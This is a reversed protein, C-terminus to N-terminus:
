ASRRTRAEFRARDKAGRRGVLESYLRFNAESRREAAARTEFQEAKIRAIRLADYAVLAPMRLAEGDDRLSRLLADKAGRGSASLWGAVTLGEKRDRAALVARPLGAVLSVFTGGGWPTALADALWTPWGHPTYVAALVRRHEAELLALSGGVADFWRMGGNSLARLRAEHPRGPDFASTSPEYSQAKVGIAASFWGVLEDDAKGYRRQNRAHDYM